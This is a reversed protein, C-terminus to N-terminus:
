NTLLEFDVAASSVNTTAWRQFNIFVCRTTSTTISHYFLPALSFIRFFDRPFSLTHSQGKGDAYMKGVVSDGGSIMWLALHEKPHRHPPIHTHPPVIVLEAQFKGVRFLTM